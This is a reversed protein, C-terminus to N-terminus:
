PSTMQLLTLIESSHFFSAIFLRSNQKIFVNSYFVIKIVLQCSLRLVKMRLFPNWYGKKFAVKMIM